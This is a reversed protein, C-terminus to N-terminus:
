LERVDKPFTKMAKSLVNCGGKCTQKKNQSAAAKFTRYAKDATDDGYDHRTFYAEPDDAVGWTEFVIYAKQALNWWTRKHDWSKYGM